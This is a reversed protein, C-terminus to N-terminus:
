LFMGSGFFVFPLIVKKENKYLGPAIFLWLQWFIIPMSIVIAASFSIKVAVMVGEIPSLQILTGKYSNKVFEFINKWFHFCGLFAVLITGVSVMLRKRLEQLHPKLDEFM